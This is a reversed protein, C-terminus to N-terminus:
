EMFQTLLIPIFDETLGGSEKPHPIMKIYGPIGPHFRKYVPLKPYTLCFNKDKGFRISLERMIVREGRNCRFLSHIAMRPGNFLSASLIIRAKGPLSYLEVCRQQYM